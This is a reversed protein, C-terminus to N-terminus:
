NAEEPTLVCPYTTSCLIGDARALTAAEVDTVDDACCADCREVAERGDDRTAILYRKNECAECHFPCAPAELLISECAHELEGIDQIAPHDLFNELAAEILERETPLTDDFMLNVAIRVTVFAVTEMGDTTKTFNENVIKLKKM